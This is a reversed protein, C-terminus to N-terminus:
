RYTNHEQLPSEGGINLTVLFLDGQASPRPSGLRLLQWGESHQGPKAGSNGDTELGWKQQCVPFCIMTSIRGMWISCIYGEFFIVGIKEGLTIFYFCSVNPGSPSPEQWLKAMLYSHSKPFVVWVRQVMTEGGLSHLLRISNLFIYSFLAKLGWKLSSLAHPVLSTFGFFALGRGDLLEMRPCLLVVTSSYMM